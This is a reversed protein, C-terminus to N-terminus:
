SRAKRKKSALGAAGLGLGLLMLSAPEPVPTLLDQGNDCRDVTLYNASENSVPGQVQLDSLFATAYTRASSHGNYAKFNGSNLSFDSDYVANWIALQLGASKDTDNGVDALHHNLLWAARQGNQLDAVSHSTVSYEAPLDMFHQLDVCYGKGFYVGDNPPLPSGLNGGTYLNFSGAAVGNSFWGGLSGVYLDYRTYRDIIGYDVGLVFAHSPTVAAATALIALLTLVLKM